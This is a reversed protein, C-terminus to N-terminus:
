LLAPSSLNGQRASFGRTCCVDTGNNEMRKKRGRERERERSVYIVRFSVLHRVDAAGRSSSSFFARASPPDGNEKTQREQSAGGEGRKNEKEKKTEEDDYDRSRRQVYM